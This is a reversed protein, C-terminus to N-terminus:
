RIKMTNCTRSVRRYLKIREFIQTEFTDWFQKKNRTGHYREDQETELELARTEYQDM